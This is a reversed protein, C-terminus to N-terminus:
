AAITGGLLAAPGRAHRPPRRRPSGAAGGGGGPTAESLLGLAHASRTQRSIAFCVGVKIFKVQVYAASPGKVWM